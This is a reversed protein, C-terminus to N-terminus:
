PPIANHVSQDTPVWEALEGRQLITHGPQETIREALAPFFGQSGGCESRRHNLKLSEESQFYGGSNRRLIELQGNYFLVRRAETASEECLRTNINHRGSVQRKEVCTSQSDSWWRKM